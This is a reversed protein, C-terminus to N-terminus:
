GSPASPAISPGELPSPTVLVTERVTEPPVYVTEPAPPVPPINSCAPPTSEVTLLSNHVYAGMTPQTLQMWEGSSCAVALVSQAPLKGIIAYDTGPGSRLNAEATAIGPVGTKGSTSTSPSGTTPSGPTSACSIAGFLLTATALFTVGHVTAARFPSTPGPRPREM